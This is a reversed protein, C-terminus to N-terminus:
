AGGPPEQLEPRGGTNRPLNTGHQHAGNITSDVSVTWAIDRAADAQTLLVAHIRDWIRGVRFPPAAEVGDAVSRVAGAPGAM